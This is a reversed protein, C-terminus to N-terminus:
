MVVVGAAVYYRFRGLEVVLGPTIITWTSIFVPFLGNPPHAERRDV